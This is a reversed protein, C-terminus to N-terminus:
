SEPAAPYYSGDDDLTVFTDEQVVQSITGAAVTAGDLTAGKAPLDSRTSAQLIFATEGSEKTFLVDIINLMFFVGKM